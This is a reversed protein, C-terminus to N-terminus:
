EDRRRKIYYGGTTTILVLGIGVIGVIGSGGTSPLRGKRINVVVAPDVLQEPAGYTGSGVTFAIRDTLLVYDTPATIEELYYTGYDLGRIDVIGDALTTFKKADAESAVWSVANNAGIALYLADDADGDRVVFTAGALNLNALDKDKKIFRKGGTFVEPGDDNDTTIRTMTVTATNEYALDPNVSGDLYMNYTITLDKGADAALKDALITMVFGNGSDDLTVDSLPIITDGAKIEVINSFKLGIDPADTIIMSPHKYDGNSLTDGMGVPINVKIAYPIMDGVNYDRKDGVIDKDVIITDNVVTLSTPTTAGAEITFDQNNESDIIAADAPAATEILKYSGPILGNVTLMGTAGAVDTLDTTGIGYTRGTLFKHADASDDSWTFYGNAAGSLYRNTANSQIIFEAGSLLSNDASGRKDVILDGKTVVNKPYLHIDRLEDDTYTGNTNMRYVPFMLVMNAAVTVGAKPSEVILYVAHRGSGDFKNLNFGAEGTNDTTDTALATRGSIDLGQVAALAANVTAGGARATYYDASVDYVSFTVGDTYDEYVDFRADLDGTNQLLPDPLETMMKKHLTVTATDDARVVELASFGLSSVISFLLTLVGLIKIVKKMKKGGREM